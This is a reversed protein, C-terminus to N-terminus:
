ERIGFGLSGVMVFYVCGIWIWLCLLAYCCGELNTDQAECFVSMGRPSGSSGFRDRTFTRVSRSVSASPRLRLGRAQPLRVPDRRGYIPAVSSRPIALSDVITAM